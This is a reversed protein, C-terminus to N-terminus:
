SPCYHVIYVRTLLFCVACKTRAYGVIGEVAVVAEIKNPECVFLIPFIMSRSQSHLSNTAGLETSNVSEVVYRVSYM